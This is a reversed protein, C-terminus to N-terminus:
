TMDDGDSGKECSYPDFNPVDNSIELLQSELRHDGLDKIAGMKLVNGGLKKSGPTGLFSV